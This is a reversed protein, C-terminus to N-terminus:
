KNLPEYIFELTSKGQPLEIQLLLESQAPDSVLPRLRTETDPITLQLSDRQFVRESERTINGTLARFWVTQPEPSDLELVRQLRIQEETRLAVSRDAIEISGFRYRLTPVNAIDLDYGLFQYGVNKPYLPDPNTRAEKTMAPMLPWPSSESELQAFSVDQALTLPESAPNFDGSGQGSWNVGIFDGQWIAALTGTEANFAYSLREPLGVAIGRFGAVRSRGRYNVTQGNVPIKTSIARIGSPDAASTGLSLYYWIAEIQKDTDGDLITKFAAVGDPWAAPMVTRPRFANPNRLYRNFWGPQLRQYSTML